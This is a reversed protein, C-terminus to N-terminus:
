YFHFREKKKTLKKNVLFKKSEGIKFELRYSVSHVGCKKEESFHCCNISWVWAQIKWSLWWLAKRQEWIVKRHLFLSSSHTKAMIKANSRFFNKRFKTNNTFENVIFKLHLDSPLFHQSWCNLLSFLHLLHARVIKKAGLPLRLFVNFLLQNTRTRKCQDNNGHAKKRTGMYGM